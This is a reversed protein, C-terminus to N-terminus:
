EERNHTKMDAYTAIMSRVRAADAKNESLWLALLIRLQTAPLGSATPVGAAVLDAGGGDGYVGQVPGEPVRTSLVVAVDASVFDRVAAVVVPNANGIGTGALVIGRAGASVAAGILVDDAGPYMEILDVRIDEFAASPRPLPAPRRPVAGVTVTGDAVTGLDGGASSRFADLATTHVKRTGRAPLIRGAFVILAGLGRCQPAAATLVADALNRPGDGDVADGARQAGTLVVPREDDHVLDLLLATEEMTDTGHTIVIGDVPDQTRLLLSAVADSIARLHALTMRYSGVTMLDHTEIDIGDFVAGELVAAATRTAVVGGETATSAITGGTAIVAIRTM